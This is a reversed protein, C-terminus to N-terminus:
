HGLRKIEEELRAVMYQFYAPADLLEKEVSSPDAPEIQFLWGRGYPDQNILEPRAELEENIAVIRGNLPSELDQSAKVTEIEGCPDGVMLEQGVVPLEVFAVDGSRQQLFDTVGATAIDDALSIWMDQRSYRYSTKVRFTFKDYAAELYENVM